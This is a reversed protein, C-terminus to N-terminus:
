LTPGMEDVMLCDTPPELVVVVVVAVVDVVVGIPAPPAPDSDDRTAESGNSVDPTIGLLLGGLDDCGGMSPKLLSVKAPVVLSRLFGVPPRGSSIEDTRSCSKASISFQSEVSEPRSRADMPPSMGLISGIDIGLESNSFKIALRASAPELPPAALLGVVVVVVM